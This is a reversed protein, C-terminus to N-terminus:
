SGKLRVEALPRMHQQITVAGNTAPKFRGKVGEEIDRFREATPLIDQWANLLRLEEASPAHTSQKSRAVAIPSVDSWTSVRDLVSLNTQDKM